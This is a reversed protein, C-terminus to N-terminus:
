MRGALEEDTLITLIPLGDPTIGNAELAFLSAVMMEMEEPSLSKGTPIATAKALSLAMKETLKAKESVGSEMAAAIINKIHEAPNGGTIEAPTAHIAYSSGGLHALDFGLFRIEDNLSTLLTTEAATLELM